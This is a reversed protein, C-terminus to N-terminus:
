LTEKLAETMAHYEKDGQFDAATLDNDFDSFKYAPHEHCFQMREFWRIAKAPATSRL